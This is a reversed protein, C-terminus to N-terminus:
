CIGYWGVGEDRWGVSVLMDREGVGTTYNHSGVVANPNYQRLLPVDGGSRWGEGEFSWGAAVLFDREEASATYHHDGVYPNYLRFVADGSTPAVWGVGEHSWGVGVLSDREEVSATYFHEGSYPNYLRQMPVGRDIIRFTGRASGAYNGRGSVTVTATGVAVNNAYSVTYDSGARLTRGGLKVTAAPELADGTCTQDAASVTAGSIDRASIAFSGSARGTYKGRGSIVVWAVGANVNDYYADVVYDSGERLTTSGMTVKPSPKRATGDYTQRAAAVKVGMTQKITITKSASATYEDGENDRETFTATIKVTGTGRATVVGGSSVTAINSSSSWMVSAGKPGGNALTYAGTSGVVLSSPGSLSPAVNQMAALANVKGYGTERDWGSAGIDTATCYVIARAQSAALGPQRAFLLSFVGAVVPSAMSTGSDSGIGQGKTSYIETGPASVNKATSGSANYNSTSNRMGDKGLNIVSVAYPSDAPYADYPVYAGKSPRHNCAAMVSVVGGRFAKEVKGLVLKDSASIDGSVKGKGGISLNVVRINLRDKNNMVYDYARSLYVSSIGGASDLVKVLALGANYSTGVTGFANNAEAGAIGAVHTGHRSSESVDSGGDTANYKAVVKNTLDPNTTEFGDDIVAIRVGNSPKGGSTPLYSWADSAKVDSLHWTRASRMSSSLGDFDNVSVSAQTEISAGEADAAADGTAAGTGVVVDANAGGEGQPRIEAFDVVFDDPFPEAVEDPGDALEEDPTAPDEGPDGGADTALDGDADTAPDGGGAAAAAAVDGFGDADPDDIVVPDGSANPNGAAATALRAGAVQEAVDLGLRTPLDRDDAIEYHYNPQVIDALGVGSLEVVADEVKYGEAVDLTVLVDDVQEQTLTVGAITKCAALAENAADATTGEPFTVLIRDADYEADVSMLRTAVEHVEPDRSYNVTPDFPAGGEGQDGDGRGGDGRGGAEPGQAGQEHEATGQEHEATGQQPGPGAGHKGAYSVVLVIAAVMLIAVVVIVITKRM